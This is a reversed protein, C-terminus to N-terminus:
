SEAGDAKGDLVGEIEGTSPVASPLEVVANQKFELLVGEYGSPVDFVVDLWINRDKKDLKVDDPVLDELKTETLKGDKLFGVPWVAKGSGALPKVKTATEKCIMRIQAPFFEVKGGNAPNGAGGSKINNVAIGVRVVTVKGHDPIDWIRVAKEAAGSPLKLCDKSAVPLVNDKIKFRNLHVQSLFDTHLVSFSKSSAMSGRSILSYLGTVFGDTNLFAKQPNSLSVPSDPKFRNHLLKNQVPALGMAVLISGSVLLGSILGCVVASGIKVPNGLDIKSGGILFNSLARLLAFVLVFILVFCGAHAWQIGYGRSIFIDALKEYYTFTTISAIIFIMMMSFSAITSCKLYFYALTLLIVIIVIAFIM